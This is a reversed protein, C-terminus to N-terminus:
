RWPRRIEPSPVEVIMISPTSTAARASCETRGSRTSVPGIRHTGRDGAAFDFESVRADSTPATIGSRRSIPVSITSVLRPRHSGCFRRAGWQPPYIQVAGNGPNGVSRWACNMADIAVALPTECMRSVIKSFRKMCTGSSARMPASILTSPSIATQSRRRDGGSLHVRSPLLDARSRPTEHQGPQGRFALGNDVADIVEIAAELAQLFFERPTPASISRCDPM